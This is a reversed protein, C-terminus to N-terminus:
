TTAELLRSTVFDLGREWWHQRRVKRVLKRHDRIRDQDAQALCSRQVQELSAQEVRPWYLVNLGRTGAARPTFALRTVCELCHLQDRRKDAYYWRM